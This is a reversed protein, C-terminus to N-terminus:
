SNHEKWVLWMLCALVMNWVNSSYTGLWNRWAFLLSVVTNPMVLQVFMLFVESWLAHSFKCHLLLHDLTEKDCRCLCCWNVLPLNKKVLNDITLIWNRAATWLFFAVRKPIKICWISQWPLSVSPAKLLSYNFFCVDFVGCHTLQWIPTDDGEGRPIRASVPEFLTFDGRKGTMLNVISFYTGVGVEGM